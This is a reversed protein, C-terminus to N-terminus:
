GPATIVSPPFGCRIYIMLALHCQQTIRPTFLCPFNNEYMRLIKDILGRLSVKLLLWNSLGRFFCLSVLPMVRSCPMYVFVDGAGSNSESLERARVRTRVRLYTVCTPTSSHRKQIWQVRCLALWVEDM